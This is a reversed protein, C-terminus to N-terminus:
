AVITTFDNTSYRGGFMQALDTQEAVPTYFGNTLRHIHKRFLKLTGRGETAYLDARLETLAHYYKGFVHLALANSTKLDCDGHLIHALEHRIVLRTVAQTEPKPTYFMTVTYSGRSRAADAITTGYPVKVRELEPVMLWITRDGLGAQAVETRFLGNLWDVGSEEWSDVVGDLQLDVLEELNDM